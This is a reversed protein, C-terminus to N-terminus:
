HMDYCFPSAVGVAILSDSLTSTGPLVNPLQLPWTIAFLLLQSCPLLLLTISWQALQGLIPVININAELLSAGSRKKQPTKVNNELRVNFPSVITTNVNCSINFSDGSHFTLVLQGRLITMKIVCTAYGDPWIVMVGRYCWDKITFIFKNRYLNQYTRLFWDTM